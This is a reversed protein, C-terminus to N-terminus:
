NLIVLNAQEIPSVTEIYYDEAKWYRMKFKSINKQTVASERKLRRDRASDLYILYDFFVRWESRQLFVGEIIILCTDPMEVVQLQQTDSNCDYQLLHLEKAVKLEKFLNDKLWEVDWQLYYYEYWEDYTTNYRRKREVIYDDLHFICVSVNKERLYDEVKKVLTTKGSRSLGDIGLIFRQGQEMEPIVKLIALLKNELYM